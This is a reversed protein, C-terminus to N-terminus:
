RAVSRRGFLDGADQRIDPQFDLAELLDLGDAATQLADHDALHEGAHVMGIRVVQM